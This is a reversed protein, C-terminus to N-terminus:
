TRGSDALKLMDRTMEDATKYVAANTQFAFVAMVQDVAEQLYDVNPDAVLGEANAYPAQPDYAESYSPLRPTVDVAVGMGADGSGISVSNADVAQYVQPEDAQGASAVPQTPPTAPVAGPTGANAVNSASAALRSMAASMGSVSISLANM